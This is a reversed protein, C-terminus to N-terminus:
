LITFLIFIDGMWPYHMKVENGEKIYYICSKQINKVGEKLM